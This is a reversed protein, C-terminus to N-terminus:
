QFLPDPTIYPDIRSLPCLTADAEKAGFVPKLHARRRYLLSGALLPLPLMHTAKDACSLLAYPSAAGLALDSHAWKSGTHM